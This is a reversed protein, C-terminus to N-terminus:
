ECHWQTLIGYHWMLSILYISYFTMVISVASILACTIKYSTPTDNDDGFAHILYFHQKEDHTSFVHKKCWPCSNQKCQFLWQIICTDCFAHNCPLKYQETFLEFCIVCEQKIEFSQLFIHPIYQISHTYAEIDNNM